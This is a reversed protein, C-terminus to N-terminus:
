SQSILIAKRGDISEYAMADDILDFSFEQGLRTRFVPDGIMGELASLAAVLREQERVTRSEFNSFRQMSLDKMMFLSASVSFPVPGAMMGYFYVSSRMPLCAAMPDTLAGGVGDFVATTGLEASLKGLTDTFDEDARVIHEIGRRQLAEQAAQSRVMSIVPMNRRRALAALALGTASNGATAIVGRHGAEAITELFAYATMANVLSGCYDRAGVHEPLILCSTYPVQATECWLGINYSGRNLSRYIAVRRGMYRAPVGAGTAVVTGAGSAGWVGHQSAALAKGADARTRLFIKDGHNIASAEMDILVHGAEPRGPPRIDRVELSREPTVCIAKM